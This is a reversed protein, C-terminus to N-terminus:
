HATAALHPLAIRAWVQEVARRSTGIVDGVGVGALYNGALALGTHRSAIAEIRARTDAFRDAVDRLDLSSDIGIHPLAPLGSAKTSFLM